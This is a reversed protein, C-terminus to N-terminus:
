RVIAHNSQKEKTAEFHSQNFTQYYKCKVSFALDQSWSEQQLKKTDQGKLELFMIIEERLLYFRKLVKHCYLWRVKTYFLVDTFENKMNQLMQSLQRYNSARGRIYNM